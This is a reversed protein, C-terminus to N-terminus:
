LGELLRDIRHADAPRTALEARVRGLFDAREVLESSAAATATLLAILLITPVVRVSVERLERDAEAFQGSSFLEDFRRFIADIESDM